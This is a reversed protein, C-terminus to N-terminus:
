CADGAMWRGGADCTMRRQEMCVLAGESFRMGEHACVAPLVIGEEQEVHQRVVDEPIQAHLTMCGTQTALALLLIAILRM